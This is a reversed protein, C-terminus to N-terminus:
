GNDDLTERRVRPYLFPPKVLGTNIVVRLAMEQTRISMTKWSRDILNNWAERCLVVIDDSSKFVRNSLWNDRMFRWVNEM